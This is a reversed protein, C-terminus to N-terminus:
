KPRTSSDALMFSHSDIPSSRSLPHALEEIGIGAV